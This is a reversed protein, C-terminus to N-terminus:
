LYGTHKLLIHVGLGILVIGGLAEARRGAKLGLCHGCMYGFTSMTLTASGIAAATMLINIKLFAMTVGAALSDISTGIATLVLLGTKPKEAAAEKEEDFSERIMHLGILSLMVFAVWHDVSTIFNSAAWGASWGILPTLTEVGAFVAGVKLAEKLSPKHQNLGKSISAAFADASMTLALVTTSFISM